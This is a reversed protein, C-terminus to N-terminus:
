AHGFNENIYGEKEMKNLIKAQIKKMKNSIAQRSIGYHQAIEQYTHGDVRLLVIEREKNDLIRITDQFLLKFVLNKEFNKQVLMFEEGSTEDGSPTIYTANYSLANNNLKNSETNSARIQSYLENNICAYAFTSLTNNTRSNYNLVAKCLGIAAAGYYEDFNEDFIGYNRMASYILNHNQEVMKRQEDNLKM